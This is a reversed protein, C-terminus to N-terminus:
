ALNVGGAHKVFLTPEDVRVFAHKVNAPIHFVSGESYPLENGHLFFFGSGELIHVVVSQNHAGPAYSRGVPLGALVNVGYTQTSGLSLIPVDGEPDPVAASFRVGRMGPVPEILPVPIRATM